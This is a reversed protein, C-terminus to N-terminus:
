QLANTDRIEYVFLRVAITVSAADAIHVYRWDAMCTRPSVMLRLFASNEQDTRLARM